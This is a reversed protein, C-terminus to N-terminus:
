GRNGSFGVMGFCGPGGHCTIVCGTKMWTVKKYGCQAAAEEATKKSEDDLGASWIFYVHEKDLDHQQTYESIIKPILKCLAGRYKKKAMLRGDIIEISPHLSLLNGTLAVVNSVRGGARLYDLNRPLFCMKVRDAIERAAASAEEVTMDPNEKLLKAVELVVAAQGVSVQKTDVSTVYDREEAALVANQYSCTTVASYALHLIHKEPWKQHIEDFVKTFDSPASASTQPVKGTRDYYACVDEPPFTGDDLTQEAMSVHMSVLHIDYERAQEPTIDSGTEAVLVIKNSM